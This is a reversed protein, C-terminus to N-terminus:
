EMELWCWRMSGLIRLWLHCIQTLHGRTLAVRNFAQRLQHVHVPRRWGYPLRRDVQRTPQLWQQRANAANYVYGSRAKLCDLPLLVLCTYCLLLLSRASFRLYINLLHVEADVRLRTRPLHPSSTSVSRGIYQKGLRDVLM